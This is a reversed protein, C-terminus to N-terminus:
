RPKAGVERRAILKNAYELSIPRRRKFDEQLQEAARELAEGKSVGDAKLEARLRRAKDISHKDQLQNRRSTKPRHAELRKVENLRIALYRWERNRYTISTEAEDNDDLYYVMRQFHLIHEDHHRPPLMKAM